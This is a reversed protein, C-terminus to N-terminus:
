VSSEVPYISLPIFIQLSMKIHCTSSSATFTGTCLFTSPYTSLIVLVQYCQKVRSQGKWSASNSSCELTVFALLCMEKEM